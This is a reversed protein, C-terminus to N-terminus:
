LDFFSTCSILLSLLRTCIVSLHTPHLLSFCVDVPEMEVDNDDGGSGAGMNESKTKTGVLTNVVNRPLLLFRTFNCYAFSIVQFM